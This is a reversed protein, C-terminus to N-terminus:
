RALAAVLARVSADLDAPLGALDFWRLDESEDSVVAQADRDVVALFQVDLHVSPGGSCTLAHRDLRLPWESLRVRAIGSEERAEREAAARLTPDGAECHGGLQVWRGLRPHLTLLTRTRDEDVVLASGTIHGPACTRWMADPHADLHDVYERALAQQQPDPPAWRVLLARADAHLGTSM